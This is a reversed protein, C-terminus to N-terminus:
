IAGETADDCNGIAGTDPCRLLFRDLVAHM